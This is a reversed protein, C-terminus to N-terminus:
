MNVNQAKDFYNVAAVLTHGKLSLQTSTKYSTPGLERKNESLAKLCIVPFPESRWLTELSKM